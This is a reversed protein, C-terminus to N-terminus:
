QLFRRVFSFNFHSGEVGRQGGVLIEMEAVNPLTALSDTLARTLQYSGSSGWDFFISAAPTLDVMLRNGDYWLGAIGIGTHTRMHRVIQEQWNYPSIEEDFHPIDELTAGWFEGGWDVIPFFRVIFNEDFLGDQRQERRDRLLTGPGSIGGISYRLFTWGIEDAWSQHHFQFTVELWHHTTFHARAIEVDGFATVFNGQVAINERPIELKDLGLLFGVLGLKEMLNDVIAEEYNAQNALKKELDAVLSQLGLIEQIQKNAVDILGDREEELFTVREELHGDDNQSGCAALALIFVPWAIQKYIAKILSLM